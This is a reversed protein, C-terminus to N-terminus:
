TERKRPLEFGMDEALRKIENQLGLRTKGTTRCLVSLIKDDWMIPDKWRPM